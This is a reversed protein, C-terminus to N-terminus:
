KSQKAKWDICCQKAAWEMYGDALPTFNTTQRPFYHAQVVGAEVNSADQVDFQDDDETAVVFRNESEDVHITIVKRTGVWNKVRHLTERAAFWHSM